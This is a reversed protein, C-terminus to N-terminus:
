SQSPACKLPKKQWGSCLYTLPPKEKRTTVQCGKKYPQEVRSLFSLYRYSYRAQERSYHPTHYSSSPTAAPLPQKLILSSVHTLGLSLPGLTTIFSSWSQCEISVAGEGFGSPLFLLSHPQFPCALKLHRSPALGPRVRKGAGLAEPRSVGAWRLALVLSPGSHGMVGMPVFYSQQYEHHTLSATGM